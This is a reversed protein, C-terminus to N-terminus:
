YTIAGVIVAVAFAPTSAAEDGGLAIVSALVLPPLTVLITAAAAVAIKVVVIRWREVPKTLLYVATGDEIEAGLTGTGFILATLPLVLGLGMVDLMDATFEAADQDGDSLRYIAAVLVPLLALLLMILARRRGLLQRATLEILARTM